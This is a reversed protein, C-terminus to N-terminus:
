HDYREGKHSPILRGDYHTIGRAQVYAEQLLGGPSITVLRVVDGRPDRPDRKVVEAVTLPAGGSRLQVVDGAVFIHRTLYDM